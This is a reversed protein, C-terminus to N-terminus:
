NRLAGAAVKPVIVSLLWSTRKHTRIMALFHTCKLAVTRMYRCALLHTDAHHSAPTHRPQAPATIGIEGGETFNM